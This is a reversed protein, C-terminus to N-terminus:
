PLFMLISLFPGSVSAVAFHSFTGASADKTLNVKCFSPRKYIWTLLGIERINNGLHLTFLFGLNAPIVSSVLSM